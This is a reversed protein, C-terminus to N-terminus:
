APPEFIMPRWLMWLVIIGKGDALVTVERLRDM